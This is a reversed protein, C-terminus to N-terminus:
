TELLNKMDKLKSVKCPSYGQISEIQTNNLFLPIHFYINLTLLQEYVTVTLICYNVFM